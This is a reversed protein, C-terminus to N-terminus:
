RLTYASDVCYKLYSLYQSANLKCSGKFDTINDEWYVPEIRSWNPIYFEIISDAHKKLGIYQSIILGRILDIQFGDEFYERFEVDNYRPLLFLLYEPLLNKDNPDFYNFLKQFIGEFPDKFYPEESSNKKSDLKEFPRDTFLEDAYRSGNLLTDLFHIYIRKGNVVAKINVGPMIENIFYMDLDSSDYNKFEPYKEIFDPMYTEPFETQLSSEFPGTLWEVFFSDINM